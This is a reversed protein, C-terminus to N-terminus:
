GENRAGVRMLLWGAAAYPWLWGLWRSLGHFRIFRGQSWAQLSQTYYANDPAQAVVVVLATLVMLGVAAALRSPLLSCALAAVLGM